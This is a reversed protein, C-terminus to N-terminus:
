TAHMKGISHFAPLLKQLFYTGREKKVPKPEYSFYKWLIVKMRAIIQEIEMDGTFTLEQLLEEM